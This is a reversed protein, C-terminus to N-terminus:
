TLCSIHQTHKEHYLTYLMCMTFIRVAVQKVFGLQVDVVDQRHNQVEGGGRATQRDFRMDKGGVRGIATSRSVPLLLKPCFVLHDANGGPPWRGLHVPYRGGVFPGVRPVHLPPFAVPDLLRHVVSAACWGFLFYSLKTANSKNYTLISSTKTFRSFMNCFGPLRTHTRAHPCAHMCAHMRSNPALYLQFTSNEGTGDALKKRSQKRRVGAPNCRM